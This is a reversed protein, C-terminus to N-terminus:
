GQIRIAIPSPFQDCHYACMGCGVCLSEELVPKRNVMKIARIHSPCLHACYDCLIGQSTACLELDIEAKAIPQIRHFLLADTPCAEVCPFDKCWRCPKQAPSLFPTGEELGFEENLLSIAKEPCAHVCEKQCTACLTILTSTEAAGPPRIVKIKTEEPEEQLSTDKEVEGSFSRLMERAFVKFFQKRSYEM